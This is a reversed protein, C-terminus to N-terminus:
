EYDFRQVVDHLLPMRKKMDNVFFMYKQLHTDLTLYRMSFHMKQITGELRLSRCNVVALSYYSSSAGNSTNYEFAIIRLPDAAARTKNSFPLRLGVIPYFLLLLTRSWKKKDWNKKLLEVM